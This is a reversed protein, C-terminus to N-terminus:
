RLETNDIINLQFAQSLPKLKNILKNKKKNSALFEKTNNNFLMFAHYELGKVDIGETVRSYIRQSTKVPNIYIKEVSDYVKWKGFKLLFFSNFSRYLKEEPKLQVGRYGTFIMLSLLILLPSVYPFGIITILGGILLLVGFLQFQFPFLREAILNIM